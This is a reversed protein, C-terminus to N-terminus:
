RDGQRIFGAGVIASWRHAEPTGQVADNDTLVTELLAKIGQCDSEAMAALPDLTLLLKDAEEENLDLVLVPVQADTDIDARLHGDVIMLSGDALEVVLLVDAFGIEELLGRLTCQQEQPHRRWNKPNRACMDLAAGM